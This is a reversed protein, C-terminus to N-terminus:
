PYWRVGDIYVSSLEAHIEPPPPPPPPPPVVGTSYIYLALAGLGLAAGILLDRTKIAM